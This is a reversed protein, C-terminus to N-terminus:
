QNTINYIENLSLITYNKSKVLNFIELLTHYIGKNQNRLSKITENSINQFEDRSLSDKISRMWQLYPTNFVTNMPHLSIIKLGSHTFLDLYPNISLGMENYLFSGDEFFVPFHILKSEHLFPQINKQLTTITNSIYKIGYTNYLLHAVDTVDFCRHSRCAITEPAFRKCTDLVETFSKGHSSNALFNPHIGRDIIKQHFLDSIIESHHTLFFTFRFEDLPILRIFENMVDESAWDIDSTFCFVPEDQWIKKNNIFSVISSHHRM